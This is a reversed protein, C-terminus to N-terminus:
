TVTLNLTPSTAGSPNHVSIPLAGPAALDTATLEVILNTDNVFTTPKAQGNVRVISAAEFGSGSITLKTAAGASVQAPTISVAKLSTGLKDKRASDGDATKFLTTFVENLKDTAQKSFMGALAAVAAMGYPSVTGSSANATILGGRLTVYLVVALVSGIPLRMFYWVIWSQVFRRNGVYDVFSTAAHIFSGLAGACIVILLLRMDDSLATQGAIWTVLVPNTWKGDAGVTPWLKVLAYLLGAAALLLYAAIGVLELLLAQTVQAIPEAETKTDAM